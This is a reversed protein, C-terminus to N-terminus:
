TEAANKLNVLGTEFQQGVMRDMSCFVSMLKATFPQPGYMAWTVNTAGGGPTLTFEAFNHAEFPKLFDLRIVIKAPPASELIEMGGTGVQNNGNWQYVAGEGETSGSYVRQLDPDLKEWPSWVMWRRFDIIFPFIKEPPANISASRQIRFTDPRTAAYVLLAVILVVIVIGIIKLM